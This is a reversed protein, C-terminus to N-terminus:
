GSLPRYQIQQGHVSIGAMLGGRPMVFATSGPQLRATAAAGAKLAVASASAGVDFSGAKLRDVEDQSSLVVLEAFTQGGLELGISGQRLEVYGTPVGHEYLIGKGYAGGAVLAGAAGVDPFVAYAQATDLLSPLGPDRTEMEGLTANASQMLDHRATGQPATTACGAAGLVLAISRISM